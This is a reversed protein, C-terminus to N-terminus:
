PLFHEIEPVCSVDSSEYPGRPDLYRWPLGLTSGSVSATLACGTGPSSTTRTIGVVQFLMDDSCNARHFTRGYEGDALATVTARSMPGGLGNMIAVGHCRDQWRTLAFKLERASSTAIAIWRDM